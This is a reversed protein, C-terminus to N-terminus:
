VSESNRNTDKNIKTSWLKRLLGIIVFLGSISLLYFILKVLIPYDVIITAILLFVASTLQLSLKATQDLRRWQEDSIHSVWQLTRIHMGLTDITLVSLVFIVLGWLFLKAGIDKAYLSGIICTLVLAIEGVRVILRGLYKWITIKNLPALM